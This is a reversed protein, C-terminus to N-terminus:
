LVHVKSPKERVIQPRSRTVGGLRSLVHSKLVVPYGDADIEFLYLNSRLWDVQKSKQSYGTLRKMEKLSLFM